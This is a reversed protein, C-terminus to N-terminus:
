NATLFILNSYHNNMQNICILPYQPNTPDIAFHHSEHLAAFRPDNVNMKFSDQLEDADDDDNGNKNHKRRQKKGKNKEHKIIKKMDFHERDDKSDMLLLELEARERDCELKEEATLTQKKKSKKDNSKDNTMTNVKDIIILILLKNLYIIILKSAFGEEEMAERFYPDDM